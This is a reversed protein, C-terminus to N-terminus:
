AGTMARYLAVYELGQKEWSFDQAMGNQMLQKWGQQDRWNRLTWDLTGALAQSSYDDFLFGTGTKTNPDWALVTDALGGTRRVIPPTGYRLSYMQNLGCPEFRSPMLFLDSGAEIWHALEDHYGRYIGVKKPWTDRLWQFYKEHQDEGAGLVCLRMDERQLFVPISDAFLEFGKQSTLRSVVGFVPARSDYPLQMRDLLAAKMKAKGSPDAASYRHPILPDSAPDWDGYDVGNVIGVFDKSRSRLLEDMGMGYEATQIERAYTRSVTTLRTAHLVGTKLCSFKGDRLDGHHLHARQDGLGIVDVQGQDFFGQYAINHITLLTRSPTFLRDWAYTTKLYLPLLGTHWDNCHVVDPSWQLRQCTELVARCLFAWRLPEDGDDTYFGARHYLVPCDVFHVLAKSQPLEATRISGRITRSPFRIDIDQAGALPKLKLASDAVQKYLPLFLRVDHGQRQLFRGLGAIVDALGGTKAFPAIEAAVLALRLPRMTPPSREHQCARAALTVTGRGGTL